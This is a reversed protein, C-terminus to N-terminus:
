TNPTKNSLDFMVFSKLWYGAPQAASGETAVYCSGYCCCCGCGGQSLKAKKKGNHCHSQHAALTALLRACHSMLSGGGGFMYNIERTKMIEGYSIVLANRHACPDFASCRVCRPGWSM